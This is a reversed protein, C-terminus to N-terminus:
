QPHTEIYLKYSDSKRRGLLMIRDENLGADRASTAAGRRFSHGSYKGTCGLKLLIDRLMQTVWQQSFGSRINFLPAHRLAPFRLFLLRLAAVLCAEDEASAIHITVGQRFHDPKSAPLSLEVYDNHLITSAKTLFWSAFDPDAQDEISYTFEGIRLFGAFAM